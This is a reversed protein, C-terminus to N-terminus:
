EDSETEEEQGEVNFFKKRLEEPLASIDIKAKISKVSTKTKSPKTGYYLDADSYELLTPVGKTSQKVVQKTDETIPNSNVKNIKGGRDLFEKLTETKM